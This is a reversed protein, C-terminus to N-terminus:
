RRNELTVSRMATGLAYTVLALAAFLSDESKMSVFEVQPVVATHSSTMYCHVERSHEWSFMQRWEGNREAWEFIVMKYDWSSHSNLCNKIATGLYGLSSSLSFAKKNKTWLKLLKWGDRLFPVTCWPLECWPVWSDSLTVHGSPHKDVRKAMERDLCTSLILCWLSMNNLSKGYMKM